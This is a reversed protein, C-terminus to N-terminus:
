LRRQPGDLNADTSACPHASARLMRLGSVTAAGHLNLSASGSAIIAVAAKGRKVSPIRAHATNRRQMDSALMARQKRCPVTGARALVTTHRKAQEYAAHCQARLTQLRLTERQM